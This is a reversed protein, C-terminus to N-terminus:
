APGKARSRVALPKAPRLARALQPNFEQADEFPSILLWETQNVGIKLSDGIEYWLHNYVTLIDREKSLLAKVCSEGQTMLRPRLRQIKTRLDSEFQELSVAVKSMAKSYDKKTKKIVAQALREQQHSAEFYAGSHHCKSYQSFEHMKDIHKKGCAMGLNYARRITFLAKARYDAVM